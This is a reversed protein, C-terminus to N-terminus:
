IYSRKQMIGDNKFNFYCTEILDKNSHTTFGGSSICLGKLPEGNFSFSLYFHNKDDIVAHYYIQIKSEIIKKLINYREDYKHIISIIEDNRYKVSGEYNFIINKLEKPLLCYNM